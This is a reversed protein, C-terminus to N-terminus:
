KKTQQKKATKKQKMKEENAKMEEETLPTERIVNIKADDGFMELSKKNYAEAAEEATSFMGLHIAKSSNRPYIMARFRNGEKKVGRYGTTSNRNSNKRAIRELTAWELNKLRCDLRNGNIIRVFLKKESPQKEVFKEAVYKHLYITETNYSKDPQRWAKQFVAYGNSHKRLNDLFNVRQFYETNKFHYYVEDDLLVYEDANKLKVKFIMHNIIPKHLFFTISSFFLLIVM